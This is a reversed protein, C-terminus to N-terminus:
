TRFVIRESIIMPPPPPPPPRISVNNRKIIFSTVVEDCMQCEYSDWALLRRGVPFTGLVTNTWDVTLETNMWANESSAAVAKTKFEKNLDAVNRKVGNFAVFPKM